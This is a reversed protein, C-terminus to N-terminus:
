FLSLDFALFRVSIARLQVLIADVLVHFLVGWLTAILLHLDLVEINFRSQFRVLQPLILCILPGLGRSVVAHIRLLLPM